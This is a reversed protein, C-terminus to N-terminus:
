ARCPQDAGCRQWGPSFPGSQGVRRGKVEKRQAAQNWRRNADATLELVCARENDFTVNWTKDQNKLAEACVLTPKRSGAQKPGVKAAPKPKPQPQATPKPRVTLADLRKQM